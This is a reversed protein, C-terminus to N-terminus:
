NGGEAHRCNKKIYRTARCRSEDCYQNKKRRCLPAGDTQFTVHEGTSWAYYDEYYDSLRGSGKVATLVEEKRESKKVSRWEGSLWTKKKKKIKLKRYARQGILNRRRRYLLYLESV